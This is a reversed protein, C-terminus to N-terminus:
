GGVRASVRAAQEIGGVIAATDVIRYLIDAIRLAGSMHSGAVVADNTASTEHPMRVHGAFRDFALGVRAGAGTLASWRAAVGAAPYGLIAALDYIPTVVGRIGAVGLLHPVSTPLAVIRRDAVLGSLEDLRLLYSDDGMRVALFGDFGSSVDRPSEAFERDFARRLAEASIRDRSRM